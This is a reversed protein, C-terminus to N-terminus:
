HLRWDRLQWGRKVCFATEPLLPPTRPAPLLTRLLFIIKERCALLATM